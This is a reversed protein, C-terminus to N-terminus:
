YIDSSNGSEARRYLINLTPKFTRSVTDRNFFRINVYWTPSGGSLYAYLVKMKPYNGAPYVGM